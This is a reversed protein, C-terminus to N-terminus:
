LKMKMCLMYKKWRRGCDSKKGYHYYSSLQRGVTLCVFWQDFEHSAKCTYYDFPLNVEHTTKLNKSGDAM